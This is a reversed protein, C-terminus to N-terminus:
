RVRFWTCTWPNAGNFDTSTYLIQGRDDFKMFIARGTGRGKIEGNQFQGTARSAVPGDAKNKFNIILEGSGQAIDMYEVITGGEKRAWTGLYKNGTEVSPPTGTTANPATPAFEISTIESASVPITFVRGKTARIITQSFVPTALLFVLLITSIKAM